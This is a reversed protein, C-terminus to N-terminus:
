VRERKKRKDMKNDRDIRQQGDQKKKKIRTTLAVVGDKKIHYAM